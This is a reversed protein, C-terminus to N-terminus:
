VRHLSISPKQGPCGDHEYNLMIPVYCPISYSQPTPRAQSSQPQPPGDAALPQARDGEARASSAPQPPALVPQWKYVLEFWTRCPFRHYRCREKLTDQWWKLQEQELEHYMVAQVFQQVEEHLSYYYAQGDPQQPESRAADAGAAFPQIPITQHQTADSFTRTANRQQSEKKRSCRTKQEAMWKQPQSAKVDNEAQQEAPGRQDTGISRVNERRATETNSSDGPDRNGDEMDAWPTRRPM